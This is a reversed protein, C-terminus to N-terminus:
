INKINYKTTYEVCSPQRVQFCRGETLKILKEKTIKDSNLLM